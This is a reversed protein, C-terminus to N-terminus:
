GISVGKSYGHQKHQEVLYVIGSIAIVLVCSIFGLTAAGFTDFVLGGYLPAITRGIAMMAQADGVREAPYSSKSALLSLAAPVAAWFCFGWVIVCVIFLWAFTTTSILIVCIATCLMWVSPKSHSREWRASPIGVLANCGFALAIVFPTLGTNAQGIIVVYVFVASEAFMFVCLAVLLIRAKMIPTHYQVERSLHNVESTYNFALAVVCAGAALVFVARM